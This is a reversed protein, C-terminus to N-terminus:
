EPDGRKWRGRAAGQNYMKQLGKRRARGEAITESNIQDERLLKKWRRVRDEDLRGEAVARAVACGPEGEHACDRFRCDAALDSIDQFVEGIGEAVDSLGLERMGPTDILWGGALTRRMERRTTTHRGRADDERIGATAASEGTLANQLTTKGVGSMGVLALVQGNRCWADLARAEEPDRADLVLATVLPSIREASRRYERPDECLDAKTLVVLPLCGAQTAIALYREIRAVNFDANCSTVIALTDVNAAILQDERAEGAARRKLVSARPLLSAIRGEALTIRDGVALPEDYLPLDVPGDPTLAEVRNRHVAIVRGPIEGEALTDQASWGLDASTLNNM